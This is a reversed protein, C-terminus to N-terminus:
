QPIQQPPVPKPVAVSPAPPPPAIAALHSLCASSERDRWDKWVMARGENVLRGKADKVVQRAYFSTIPTNNQHFKLLGNPSSLEAHQMAARLAEGDSTKGNTARLGTDLLMAANLGQIAWTTVPRGNESEFDVSTKRNTPNDFDQLWSSVSIVGLAADGMASLVPRETAVWPLYLPIQDKLGAVDYARVFSVASGGALLTYVADPRIKRIRDIERAFVGTGPRSTLVTVDGRFTRKVSAVAGATAPLDSAVVVLTRVKENSLLQGTVEHASSLPPSLDFRRANCAAGDLVEPGPLLNLVFLRSDALPKAVAMQASPSLATVVVDLRERRMLRDLQQVAQDPSGKDDSVVVRVDQNALRGGLSKVYLMFGDVADQAALAQAGSLTALIGVVIAPDRAGLTSPLPSTTVVGTGTAGGQGVTPSVALAGGGGFPWSALVISVIRLASLSRTM